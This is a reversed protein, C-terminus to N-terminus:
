HRVRIGFILERYTARAPGSIWAPDGSTTTLELGFDIWWGKALKRTVTLSAKRWLPGHQFEAVTPDASAPDLLREGGALRLVFDFGGAHGLDWRSGGLRRMHDFGM